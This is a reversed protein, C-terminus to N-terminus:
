WPCAALVVATVAARGSSRMGTYIAICQWLTLMPVLFPAWSPLWTFTALAAITIDVTWDFQGGKETSANLKRAAWGDIMDLAMSPILLAPHRLLIAALGFCAGAATLLM